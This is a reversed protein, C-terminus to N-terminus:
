KGRLNYIFQEIEINTSNYSINLKSGLMWSYGIQDRIQKLKDVANPDDHNPLWKDKKLINKIDDKTLIKKKINNTEM